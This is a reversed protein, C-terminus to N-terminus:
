LINEQDQLNTLEVLQKSRQRILSNRFRTLPKLKDLYYFSPPYLKYEITMLYLAIANADIFDKKTKVLSKSCVFRAVWIPNIEM